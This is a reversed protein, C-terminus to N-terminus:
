GKMDIFEQQSTAAYKQFAKKSKSVPTAIVFSYKKILQSFFHIAIEPNYTIIGPKFHYTKSLSVFYDFVSTNKLAFAMDTMQSHLHVTKNNNHLNKQLIELECLLKIGTAFDKKALLPLYAINNVTLAIKSQIPLSLFRKVIIAIQSSSTMERTIAHVDPVIHEIKIHNIIM